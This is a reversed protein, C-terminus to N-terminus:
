NGFISPFPLEIRPGNGGHGGEGEHEGGGGIGIDIGISFGRPTTEEPQPQPQPQTQPAPSGTNPTTTNAPPAARAPNEVDMTVCSRGSKGTGGPPQAGFLARFTSAMDDPDLTQGAQEGFASIAANTRPGPWGDAVGPDFGRAALGVQVLQVLLRADVAVIIDVCNETGPSVYGPLRIPVRLTIKEGSAVESNTLCISQGNAAPSCHWDGFAAGNGGAAVPGSERLFLPGTYTATGANTAGIEFTCDSGGRCREPQLKDLIFDPDNGLATDEGESEGESDGQNVGTAPGPEACQKECEALDNRLKAEQQRLRALTTSLDEVREALDLEEIELGELDTLLDSAQRIQDDAIAQQASGDQGATELRSKEVLAAAFADQAASKAARKTATEGRMAELAAQAEALDKGTTMISGVADNVLSALTECPACDTRVFPSPDPLAVAGDDKPPACQKECEALQAKLDAVQTTLEDVRAQAANVATQAAGQAAGERAQEDTLRNRDADVEHLETDIEAKRADTAGGLWEENLASERALAADLDTKRQDAADKLGKLKAKAADLDREAGILSGVADNVLSALTECPACDTRVFDDQGTLGTAGDGTDSCNKECEALRARADIIDRDVQDHYARKAALDADAERLAEVAAAIEADLRQRKSDIQHLERTAADRATAEGTGTSIPALEQERALLAAMKADLKALAAEHSAIRAATSQIDVAVTYRELLLANLADALPQCSACDTTVYLFLEPQPLNPDFVSGPIATAGGDDDGPCNFECVQLEAQLDEVRWTLEEHAKLLAELQPEMRRIEDEAWLMDSILGTREAEIEFLRDVLAEEEAGDAGGLLQEAIDRESTDLAESQAEMRALAARRSKLLWVVDQIETAVRRRESKAQALADAVPQCEPCKAVIPGFNEPVPFAPDIFPDDLGVRDSDAPTCTKECAALRQEAAQLLVTHARYNAIAELVGQLQTAITEALGVRLRANQARKAAIQRLKTAAERQDGADFVQDIRDASEGPGQATFSRLLNRYLAREELELARAEHELRDLTERNHTLSEYVWQATSAFSRRHSRITNVMEALPQCKACKAVIGIFNEPEPVVSPDLTGTAPTPVEAAPEDLDLEEVSCTFECQYMASQLRLARRMEQLARQRLRELARLEADLASRTRDRAQGADIAPQEARDRADSAERYEYDNDGDSRGFLQDLVKKDLAEFEGNLREFTERAALFEGAARRVIAAQANYAGVAAEYVDVQAHYASEQERCRDCDTTTKELRLLSDGLMPGGPLGIPAQAQAALSWVVAFCLGALAVGIRRVLGQARQKRRAIKSRPPPSATASM